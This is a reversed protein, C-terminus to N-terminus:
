TVLVALSALGCTVALRVDGVREQRSTRCQDTSGSRHTLGGGHRRLMFQWPRVEGSMPVHGLIRGM